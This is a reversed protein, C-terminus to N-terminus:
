FTIVSVTVVDTVDGFHGSQLGTTDPASSVTWFIIASTSILRARMRYSIIPPPYVRPFRHNAALETLAASSPMVRGTAM